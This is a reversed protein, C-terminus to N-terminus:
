YGGMSIQVTWWYNHVADVFVSLNYGDKSVDTIISYATFIKCSETFIRRYVVWSAREKIWSFLSSPKRPLQSPSNTVDSYSSELRFGETMEDTFDGALVAV